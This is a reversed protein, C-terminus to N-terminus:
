KSSNSGFVFMAYRVLTYIVLVCAIITQILVIVSLGPLPQGSATLYANMMKMGIASIM